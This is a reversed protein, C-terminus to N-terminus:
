RARKKRRAAKRQPRRRAAAKKGRGTAVAAKRRLRRMGTKAKKKRAGAKKKRRRRAGATPGAATATRRARKARAKKGAKAWDSEVRAVLKDVGTAHVMYESASKLQDSVPRLLDRLNGADAVAEDMTRSVKRMQTKLNRRATAGASTALKEARKIQANRLKTVRANARKLDRRLRRAERALTRQTKRALKVFVRRANLFMRQASAVEKTM